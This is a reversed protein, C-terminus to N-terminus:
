CGLSHDLRVAKMYLEFARQRSPNAAPNAPRPVPVSLSADLLQCFKQEDQKQQQNNIMFVGASFILSILVLVVYGRRERV